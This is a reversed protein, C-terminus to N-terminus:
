LNEDRITVDQCDSWKRAQAQAASVERESDMATLARRADALDAEVATRCKAKAAELLGKFRKQILKRLEREDLDGQM